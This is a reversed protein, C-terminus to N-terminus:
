LLKVALIFGGVSLALFGISLNKNGQKFLARSMAGSIDVTMYAFLLLWYYGITELLNM